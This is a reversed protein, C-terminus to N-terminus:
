ALPLQDARRRAKAAPELEADAPASVPAAPNGAVSGPIVGRLLLSQAHGADAAMTGRLRLLASLQQDLPGPGSEETPRGLLARYLAARLETVAAVPFPPLSALSAALWPAPLAALTESEAACAGPTPSPDPAAHTAPPATTREDARAAGDHEAGDGSEGVQADDSARSPSVARDIGAARPGQSPSACDDAAAHRSSSSSGGGRRQAKAPAARVVMARTPTFEWALDLAYQRAYQLVFAGCDVENM